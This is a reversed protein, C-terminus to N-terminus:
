RYQHENLLKIRTRYDEFRALEEATPVAYQSKGSMQEQFEVALTAQDRKLQLWPLIVTLFAAAEKSTARWYKGNAAATGHALSAIWSAFTHNRTSIQVVLWYVPRKNRIKTAIFVSGNGDFIGALYAYVDRQQTDSKQTRTQKIDM